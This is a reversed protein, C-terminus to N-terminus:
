VTFNSPINWGTAGSRVIASAVREVILANPMSYSPFVPTDCALKAQAAQARHGGGGRGGSERRGEGSCARPQPEDREQEPQCRNAPPPRDPLHAPHVAPRPRREARGTEEEADPDHHHGRHHKRRDRRRDGEIRPHSSLPRKRREEEGGPVEHRPGRCADDREAQGVSATADRPANEVPIAGAAPHRSRREDDRRDVLQRRELLRAEALAAAREAEEEARPTAPVAPASRIPAACPAHHTPQQQASMAESKASPIMLTPQIANTAASIAASFSTGHRRTAVQPVAAIRSASPTRM